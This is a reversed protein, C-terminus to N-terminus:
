ALSSARCSHRTGSPMGTVLSCPAQPGQPLGRSAAGGGEPVEPASHNLSPLIHRTPAPINTDWCKTTHTVAAWPWGLMCASSAAAMKV